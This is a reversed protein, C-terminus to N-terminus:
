LSKITGNPGGLSGEEYGEMECFIPDDKSLIADLKRDIGEHLTAVEHETRALRADVGKIHTTITKEVRDRLQKTHEVPTTRSKEDQLVTPDSMPDELFEHLEDVSLGGPGDKLIDDICTDDTELPKPSERRDWLLGWPQLGIWEGLMGKFLTLFTVGFSDVDRFLAYFSIAFGFMVVFIIVGFKVLEGLMHFLVQVMPGQFRLTQAFFLVRSFLLPASLAYLARGWSSTEDAFRFVLGGAVLGLGLLDIPNWHNATYLSFDRRMERIEAIAGAPVYVALLIEGATRPGGGDFVVVSCFLGLVGLYVIVDLTMRVAPVRYYADPMAVLGASLFQVGPFISLNRPQEELGTCHQGTGNNWIEIAWALGESGLLPLRQPMLAGVVELWSSFGTSAYNGLAETAEGARLSERVFGCLSRVIGPDRSSVASSLMDFDQDVERIMRQFLEMNGSKVSSALIGYFGKAFSTMMGRVLSPMDEIPVALLAEFVDKSGSMAASKLICRSDFRYGGTFMIMTKVEDSGLKKRITALVAEVVATSGSYAASDLITWHYDDVCRISTDLRFFFHGTSKIVKEVEEPALKDELFNLVGEFCEKSGSHAAAHLVSVVVEVGGELSSLIMSKVKDGKVVASVADFMAKSGSNAASHFINRGFPGRFSVM